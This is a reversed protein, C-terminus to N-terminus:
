KTVAPLPRGYMHSSQFVVMRGKQFMIMSIRLRKIGTAKTWTHTQFTTYDNIVIGIMHMKWIYFKPTRAPSAFISCLWWPVIITEWCRCDNLFQCLVCKLLYREQIVRSQSCFYNCNLSTKLLFPAQKSCIYHALRVKRWQQIIKVDHRNIISAKLEPKSYNKSICWLNIQM